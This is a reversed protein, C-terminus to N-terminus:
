PARHIAVIRQSDQAAEKADHLHRRMRENKADGREEMMRVVKHPDPLADATALLAQRYAQATVDEPPRSIVEGQLTQLAHNNACITMTLTYFVSDGTFPKGRTFHANMHNVFRETLELLEDAWRGNAEPVERDAPNDYHRAIAESLNGLSRELSNEIDDYIIEVARGVHRNRADPGDLFSTLAHQMTAMNAEHLATALETDYHIEQAM